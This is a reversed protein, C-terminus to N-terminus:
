AYVDLKQSTPILELTGTPSSINDLSALEIENSENTSIFIRISKLFSFSKGSPSTLTLNLQELKVDRVLEAKTNNNEFQQQSNSTIAPTIIEIPLNLPSASEIRIQTRDSFHFTLLDEVDNCGTVILM